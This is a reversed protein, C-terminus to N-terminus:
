LERLSVWKMDSSSASGFVVFGNAEARALYQMLSSVGAREYIGPYAQPLREGLISRLIYKDGEILRQALFDVLPMFPSQPNIQVWEQNPRDRGGVIIVDAREALELYAKLKSVGARKYVEADLQRLATGVETWSPLYVGKARLSCLVSILNAFTEPTHESIEPVLPSQSEVPLIPPYGSGSPEGPSRLLVQAYSVQNFPQPMPPSPAYNVSPDGARDTPSLDGDSDGWSQGHDVGYTMDETTHYSDGTDSRPVEDVTSELECRSPPRAASSQVSSSGTPICPTTSGGFVQSIDVFADGGDLQDEHSKPESLRVWEQGLLHRSGIEVIGNAEAMELYEKLKKSGAKKYVLPDIHRLEGGVQSWLPKEIGNAHQRTLVLLLPFFKEPTDAKIPTPSNSTNSIPIDNSGGGFTPLTNSDCSAESKSVTIGVDASNDDSCLGMALIRGNAPTPFAKPTGKAAAKDEENAMGFEMKAPEDELRGSDVDGVNHQVEAMPFSHNSSSPFVDLSNLKTEIPNDDTTVQAASPTSNTQTASTIHEDEQELGSSHFVDPRAHGGRSANRDVDNGSNALPALKALVDRCDSLVARMSEMLDALTKSAEVSHSTLVQIQQSSQTEQGQVCRSCLVTDNPSSRVRILPAKELKSHPWKPPPARPDSKDEDEVASLTDIIDSKWNLVTSAQSTISPHASPPAIVIINYGRLRLVSMGYTFDHNGSIVAITAPSPRPSPRDIAHSVMDVLMMRNAVDMNGNRMCYVMNVGSCQLESHQAWTTPQLSDLSVDLYARFKTIEGYDQVVQRIRNVLKYGSISTPIRCTECDWFIAVQGDGTM